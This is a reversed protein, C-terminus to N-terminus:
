LPQQNYVTLSLSSNAPLGVLMADIRFGEGTEIFPIKTTILGQPTEHSVEAVWALIGADSQEYSLVSMPMDSEEYSWKFDFVVSVKLFKDEMFMYLEPGDKRDFVLKGEGENEGDPRNYFDRCIVFLSILNKKDLSWCQENADLKKFGVIKKEAAELIGLEEAEPRSASCVVDIKNMDFVCHKFIVNIPISKTNLDEKLTILRVTNGAKFAEEKISVPFDHRSVCILHQGGVQELKHLWGGFTNIDPKSTRDQVEVITITERPKKGSRIVIDCQRTRGEKSGIVPLNVDHEVVSDPSISQEIVHVLQEFEKGDNNM